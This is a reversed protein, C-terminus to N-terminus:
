HNQNSLMIKIGTNRSQELSRQRLKKKIVRCGFVIRPVYPPIVSSPRLSVEKWRSSVGKINKEERRISSSM